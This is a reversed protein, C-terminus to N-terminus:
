EGKMLLVLSNILESQEQLINELEIVREELTPTNDVVIENLKYNITIVDTETYGEISLYHTSNDYNPKNDIIEKFGHQKMLNINKNFNLILNDGTNFNKPAYTLKNNILKAYM